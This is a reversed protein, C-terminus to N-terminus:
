EKLFHDSIEDLTTEFGTIFEESVRQTANLHRIAEELGAWVSTRREINTLSTLTALLLRNATDLAAIKGRLYDVSEDM